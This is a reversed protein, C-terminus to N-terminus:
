GVDRRHFAAIGIATLGAGVALLVVLPLATPDHAPAQPIHQFPSLDMVASPLDLLTGFMAVVLALALVAWAAIAWRPVLGFLACAVGVLVWVAPVQVLAAGILRPIQGADGIVLAYTAGTGLGGAVMILASGGLAVALHSWMWGFRSTPTALMPEARGGSEETRLRLTMQIAAGGAIIALILMSTALYADTLSAGGASAMMDAIAQNDAVFEEISNAISGYAVGTLAVAVAWWFVTGRQLRTALGFPRGLGASGTAPGARPAILGSGFDRHSRLVAAVVALGATLVFGLLLPWWVEGAYPRGKQVLGIPSLWSLRGDGVDGVARLAYSVGLVAGALGSATRANETIQTTVSEVGVFMLGIVTFSLGLSISGAVPLDLAILLLAVVGGLVVNMASVVVLGAALAAHRGVAMSGLLEMRGSEEEGRTLRGVMLLSMLAVVTLGFAGVQFAVQGGLTDLAQAPGNFALAAPNDISAAAATDLDAQTPYLGKTSAATVVVLAIISLIWVAIRVRDRRVAFRALAWTGTLSSV